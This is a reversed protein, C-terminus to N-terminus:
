GSGAGCGARRRRSCSPVGRCGVGSLRTPGAIGMETMLSFSPRIQGWKPPTAVTQTPGVQGQQRQRAETDSTLPFRNDFTSSYSFTRRARRSSPSDIRANAARKPTCRRSTRAASADGSGAGRLTRHTRGRQRPRPVGPDTLHQDRVAVRRGLLAVRRLPDTVAQGLLLAHQDRLGLAPRHHGLDAHLDGGLDAGRRLHEDRLGSQRTSLGLDVPALEVRHYAALGDRQVQERHPQREGGRREVPGIHVLGLLGESVRVHPREFAEVPDRAQDAVVVQLGCRRLDQLAPVAGLVFPEDRQARM